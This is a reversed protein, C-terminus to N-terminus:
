APAYVPETDPPTVPSTTPFTVPLQLPDEPEQVPLAAVAVVALAHEPLAAVAVVALAHEPLAAVAVVALAHEPLAAVAVVALAHEPLAAVAVVALTAAPTVTALIPSEVPVGPFAVRSVRAPLDATARPAELQTIVLLLTAAPLMTRSVGKSISVVRILQFATHVELVMVTVPFAV